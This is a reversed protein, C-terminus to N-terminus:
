TNKIIEHNQLIFILKKIVQNKAEVLAQERHRATEAYRIKTGLNEFYSATSGKFEKVADMEINKWFLYLLCQYIKDM